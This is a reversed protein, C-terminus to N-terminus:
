ALGLEDIAAIIDGTHGTISVKPWVRRIIGDKDILFTTRTAMLAGKRLVGYAEAIKGEADVLLPFELEQNAAFREHSALGNTSVGIVVTGRRGLEDSADRFARAERTCGPTNDKVYFFLAVNKKGAFDSLSVTIDGASQASFAPAKDGPKLQVSM